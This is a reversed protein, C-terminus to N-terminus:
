FYDKKMEAWADQAEVNLWPLTGAFSPHLPQLDAEEAPAFCARAIMRAEPPNDWHGGQHWVSQLRQLLETELPTYPSENVMDWLVKAEGGLFETSAVCEEMDQVRQTYLSSSLPTSKLALYERETMGLGMQFAAVRCLLEKIIQNHTM